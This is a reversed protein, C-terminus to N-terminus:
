IDRAGRRGGGGGAAESCSAEAAAAAAKEAKRRNSHADFGDLVQKLTDRDLLAILQWPLEDDDDVDASGIEQGVLANPERKQRIEMGGPGSTRHVHRFRTGAGPVLKSGPQCFRDNGDPDVLNWEFRKGRQIQEFTWLNDVHKYYLITAVGPEDEDYIPPTQRMYVGNVDEISSGQMFFGEAPQEVVVSSQTSRFENPLDHVETSLMNTSALDTSSSTAGGATEEDGDDEENNSGISQRPNAAPTVARSSSKSTRAPPTSARRASVASSSPKKLTPPM